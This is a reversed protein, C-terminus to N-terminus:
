VVARSLKEWAEVLKNRVELMLNFAVESKGVALMVDHLAVPDGTVLAEYQGQVDARLADVRDIADGLVGGFSGRMPVDGRLETGRGQPRLEDAAPLRLRASVGGLDPLEFGSM